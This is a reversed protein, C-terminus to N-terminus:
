QRRSLIMPIEELLNELHTYLKHALIMRLQLNYKPMENTKNYIQTKMEDM